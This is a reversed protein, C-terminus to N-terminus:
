LTMIQSLLKQHNKQSFLYTSSYRLSSHLNIHKRRPLQPTWPPPSFCETPMFMMFHFHNNGGGRWKLTMGWWFFNKNWLYLYNLKDQVTITSHLHSGVNWFVVRPSSQQVGHLLKQCWVQFDARGPDLGSLFLIYDTWGVQKSLSLLIVWCTVFLKSSNWFINIEASM